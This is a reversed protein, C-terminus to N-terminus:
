ISPVFYQLYIKEYSGDMMMKLLGANFLKMLPKQKSLSLIVYKNSMLVPKGVIKYINSNHNYWYKVISESALILDIEKASLASLLAHMTGYTKIKTHQNLQRALEKFEESNSLFGDKVGITKNKIDDFDNIPSNKLAILQGETELYPYSTIFNTLHMQPEFLGAMVFGIKKESLLKLISNTTLPIYQCTIHTRKCLENMIDIEFGYFHNKNDAAFAFPPNELTIGIKLSQELSPQDVFGVAYANCLLLSLVTALIRKM